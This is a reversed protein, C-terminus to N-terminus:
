GVALSTRSQTACCAEIVRAIKRHCAMCGGGAGTQQCIERVTRLGLTVVADTITSEHIKLCHCLYPGQCGSCGSPSCSM